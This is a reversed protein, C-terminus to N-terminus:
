KLTITKADADIAFGSSKITIKSGSEAQVLWELKKVGGSGKLLGTTRRAKGEIIQIAGEACSPVCLGCGDCKDEDIKVIKRQAM